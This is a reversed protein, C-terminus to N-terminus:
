FRLMLQLVSVLWMILSRNTIRHTNYLHLMVVDEPECVSERTHTDPCSCPAPQARTRTQEQKNGFIPRRPFRTHTTFLAGLAVIKRLLYVCDWFKKLAWLIVRCCLNINNVLQRWLSLEEQSGFLKNSILFITRFKIFISPEKGHECFAMVPVREKGSM